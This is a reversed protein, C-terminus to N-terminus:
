AHGAQGSLQLTDIGLLKLAASYKEDAPTEFIIDPQATV